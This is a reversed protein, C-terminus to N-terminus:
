NGRQTKAAVVLEVFREPGLGQPAGAVKPWVRGALDAAMVPRAAGLDHRRSLFHRLIVVDQLSVASVDWGAIMSMDIPFQPAAPDAVYRAAPATGPTIPVVMQRPQKVPRVVVTGAAMDGLRQHKASVLITVIGVLPAFGPLIDVLRMLNRIVSAVLTVPGGAVTRVQLGMARKGPSRGDDLVEFVTPYLFIIAFVCIFGAAVMLPGSMGAGGSVGLGILLGVIVVGQIMVDLLAAAYRSAVGALTMELVVGEPTVISMRDDLEM